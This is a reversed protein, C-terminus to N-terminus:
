RVHAKSNLHIIVVGAVILTIGIPAAADLSQRYVVYAVLTLLM